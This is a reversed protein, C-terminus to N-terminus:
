FLTQQRSQASRFKTTDLDERDSTDYGLRRAAVEFRKAILQAYEGVGSMRVGFTSDYERGGRTDRIRAMVHEARMPFHRVLWDKFLGKVEHPLRLLVYGASLAGAEKSAELVSEIDKDNIFPIVPAFMIGCPIGAESLRRLAQIRRYPAAARPELQGAIEVDIGTVSFHVRALGEKAMPVLIDLDREILASKTILSVPHRFEWLVELLQRTIKHEREIPQYADTNVGLAIVECKYGPKSLEQRLLQAANEKVLLRTEFDLGPSLGYYSHTPRAFCYICGHECGQYPNISQNFGVDPSSNRSIVSRSRHFTVTTPPKPRQGSEESPEDPERERGLVEFRGQPNDVAGRGKISSNSM